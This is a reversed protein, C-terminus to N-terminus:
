FPIEDYPEPNIVRRIKSKIRYRAYWFHFRLRAFFEPVVFWRWIFWRGRLTLRVTPTEDGDFLEDFDPEDEDDEEFDDFYFWEDSAYGTDDSIGHMYEYGLCEPCGLGGCEMCMPANNEEEFTLGNDSSM